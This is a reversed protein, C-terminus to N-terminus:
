SAPQSEDWKQEADAKDMAELEEVRYQQPNRSIDQLLTDINVEHGSKIYYRAAGIAYLALEFNNKFIKKLSENTLFEKM